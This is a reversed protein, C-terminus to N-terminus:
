GGNMKQGDKECLVFGCTWLNEVLQNMEKFLVTAVDGLEASKQMAMTRSRVKELATEIKAERAQAEAKQLDSFPIPKSLYKEWANSYIM